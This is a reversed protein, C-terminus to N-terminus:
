RDAFPESVVPRDQAQLRRRSANRYAFFAVAAGIACLSYPVAMMFIVSSLYARSKSDEASLGCTACAHATRAAAVILMIALAAWWQHRSLRKVKMV